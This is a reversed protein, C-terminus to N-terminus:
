VESRFTSRQVPGSFHVDAPRGWVVRVRNAASHEAAFRMSGHVRRSLLRGTCSEPVVIGHYYVIRRAIIAGLTLSPVSRM